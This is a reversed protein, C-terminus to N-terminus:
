SARRAAARHAIESLRRALGRRANPGYPQLLADLERTADQEIRRHAKRGETTIRFLHVRRDKTSPVFELYGKERLGSAIRSATSREVVLERALQGGSLEGLQALVKLAYGASPTLGAASALERECSQHARVLDLLAQRVEVTAPHLAKEWLGSPTNASRSPVASTIPDM